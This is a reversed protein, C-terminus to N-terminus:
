LCLRVEEQLREITSAHERSEKVAADKEASMRDLLKQQQEGLQEWKKGEQALQTTMDNLEVQLKQAAEKEGKLALDRQSVTARLAAIQM